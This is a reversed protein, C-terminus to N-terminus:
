EISEDPRGALPVLLQRMPLLIKLRHRPLVLLLVIRIPCIGAVRPEVVFACLHLSWVLPVTFPDPTETAITRPPAARAATKRISNARCIRAAPRAPRTSPIPTTRLIKTRGEKQTMSPSATATTNLTTNNIYRLYIGPAPKVFGNRSRHRPTAPHGIKGQRRGKAVLRFRIDRM